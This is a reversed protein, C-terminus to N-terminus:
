FVKNGEAIKETASSVITETNSNQAQSSFGGFNSFTNNGFTFTPKSNEM